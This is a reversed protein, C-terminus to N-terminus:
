ARPAGRLTDRRNRDLKGFATDLATQLKDAAARIAQHLNDAQASVAIPPRGEPRVEMVCRKDPGGSKAANSDSLHVEIRTVQESFRGLVAEVVGEVHEALSERGDINRDTNVQVQM